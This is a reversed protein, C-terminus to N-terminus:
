RLIQVHLMPHDLPPVQRHLIYDYKDTTSINMRFTRKKPIHLKYAVKNVTVTIQGIILIFQTNLLLM